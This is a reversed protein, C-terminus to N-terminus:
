RALPDVDRDAFEYDDVPPRARPRDITVVDAGLDALVMGAFPVPGIGGLELVRLSELPGPVTDWGRPRRNEFRPYFYCSRRPSAPPATSRPSNVSSWSAYRAVTSVKRARSTTGWRARQSSCRHISRSTNTAAAVCPM